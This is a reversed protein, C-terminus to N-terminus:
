TKTNDAEFCSSLDEDAQVSSYNRDARRVAKALLVTRRYEPKNDNLIRRIKAKLKTLGTGRDVWSKEAFEDAIEFFSCEVWQRLCEGSPVWWNSKHWSGFYSHEDEIESYLFGAVAHKYNDMIPGEVILHGGTKMIKRLKSLALLPNKLHYYLGCFVIVDFDAVGLKEVDYVSLDPNYVAKSGLTKHAFKYAPTCWYNDYTLFDVSHVETAGRKEAEFSWIGNCTGIDLVKKGQFDIQQFAREIHRNRPWKGPTIVGEGLDICHMWDYKKVEEALSMDNM